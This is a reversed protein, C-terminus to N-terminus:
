PPLFIHFQPKPNPFAFLIHPAPSCSTRPLRACYHICPGWLRPFIRCIGTYACHRCLCIGSREGARPGLCIEHSAAGTHHDTTIDCTGRHDDTANAHNGRNNAPPEHSPHDQADQQTPTTTLQPTAHGATAKQSVSSQTQYIKAFSTILNIIAM